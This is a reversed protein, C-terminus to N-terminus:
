PPGVPRPHRHRLAARDPRLEAHRHVRGRVRRPSPAAAPRGRGRGGPSVGVEVRQRHRCAPWSASPPSCSGCRPSSRRASCTVKGIVALPGLPDGARGACVADAAYYLTQPQRSNIWVRQHVSGNHLWRGTNPDEAAAPHHWRNAPPGCSVAPQTSTPAATRRVTVNVGSELLRDRFALVEAMPTGQTPYGPTPNLPIINVHARLRRALGALERADDPRDNVGAILAWEFSLRRNSAELYAACAEVLRDIPYQRNLPVLRDRLEDNAAHLSVALNVLLAGRHRPTRDPSSASRRCPSTDPASGPDDHM